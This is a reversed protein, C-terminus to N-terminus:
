LAEMWSRGRRRVRELLVRTLGPPTAQGTAVLAVSGDGTPALAFTTSECEIVLQEWDGLGLQAVARTAEDSVGSLGAGLEDAAHPADADRRLAALVLGDRDVLLAAIVGQAELGSFLPAGSTGPAPHPLGPAAAGATTEPFRDAAPEPAPLEERARRRADAVAPDDPAIAAAEALHREAGAADGRRFALFAFGKRAGVHGPALQRAMEWEDRAGDLDGRDARIRALLDHADALYPHRELGRLAIREAEELRRARRLADALGLFATGSPDRALRASLVAIADPM